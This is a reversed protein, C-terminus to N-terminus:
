KLCKSIMGNNEVSPRIVGGLIKKAAHIAKLQKSSCCQDILTAIESLTYIVTNPHRAQLKARIREDRVWYVVEGDLVQSRCSIGRGAQIANWANQDTPTRDPKVSNESNNSNEPSPIAPIASTADPEGESELAQLAARVDFRRFQTM